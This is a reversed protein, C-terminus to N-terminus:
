LQHALSRQKCLANSRLCGRQRLLVILTAHFLQQGPEALVVGAQARQRCSTAIVCDDCLRRLVRRRPARSCAFLGRECLDGHRDTGAALAPTTDFHCESCGLAVKHLTYQHLRQPGRSRDTM